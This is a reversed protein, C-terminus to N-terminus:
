GHISGIINPELTRMVCQQSCMGLGVMGEETVEERMSWGPLWHETAASVADQLPTPSQLTVVIVIQGTSM